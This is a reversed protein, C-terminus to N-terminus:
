AALVQFPKNWKGIQISVYHGVDFYDTMVDSRDYNDTNMAKKIRKFTELLEGEYAHELHYENLQLYTEDPKLYPSPLQESILNIPAASITLVITSHHKVALSWKWNAPIANKLAQQIKVKKEQNMYAM